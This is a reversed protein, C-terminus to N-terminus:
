ATAVRIWEVVLRATIRPDEPTDVALVRCPGGPLKLEDGVVFTRGNVSHYEGRFEGGSVIEFRTEVRRWTDTARLEDFADAKTMARAHALVAGSEGFDATRDKLWTAVEDETAGEAELTRVGVVLREFNADNEV